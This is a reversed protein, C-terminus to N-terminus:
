RTLIFSRISEVWKVKANRPSRCTSWCFIIIIILVCGGKPITIYVCGGEPIIIFVGEAIIIFVCGGEPIIIFVGEPAILSKVKIIIFVDVNLHLDTM